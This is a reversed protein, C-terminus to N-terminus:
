KTIISSRAAPAKGINVTLTRASPAAQIGDLLIPLRRPAPGKGQPLRSGDLTIVLQGEQGPELEAPQCGLRLWPPLFGAAARVKLTRSGSNVCPITETRLSRTDTDSFTVSKRRLRLAGMAHRYDKWADASPTVEGTVTLAGTPLGDSLGTYIFVRQFVRGAQAAPHFTVTVTATDGAALRTKSIRARTCGCTTALRSVDIPTTGTNRCTFALEVATTDESIVGLSREAPETRFHNGAEPAMAPNLVAELSEEKPIAQAAAPAAGQLLAAAVVSLVAAFRSRIIAKHPHPNRKM